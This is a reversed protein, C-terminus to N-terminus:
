GIRVIRCEVVSTSRKVYGMAENQRPVDLRRIPDCERRENDVVGANRVVDPDATVQGGIVLEVCPRCKRVRRITTGWGENQIPSVAEIRIGNPAILFYDGIPKASSRRVKSDIHPYYLDKAEPWHQVSRAITSVTAAMGVTACCNHWVCLGWDPKQTPPLEGVLQRM